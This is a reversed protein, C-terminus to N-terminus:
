DLSCTGPSSLACGIVVGLVLAVVSGVPIGVILLLTRATSHQRIEIFTVTTLPFAVSQDTAENVGRVSDADIRPHLVILRTGDTLTLRAKEPARAVVAQAPPPQVRWATCAALHLPLLLCAVATRLPRPIGLRTEM